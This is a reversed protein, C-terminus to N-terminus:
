TKSAPQRPAKRKPQPLPSIASCDNSSGDRAAQLDSVRMFDIATSSVGWQFSKKTQAKTKPKTQM